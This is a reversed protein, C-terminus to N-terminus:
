TRAGALAAILAVLYVAVAGIWLGATRKWGERLAWIVGLPPVLLAVLGRWRPKLRFLRWVLSVHTTILTALGLTLAAMLILDKV